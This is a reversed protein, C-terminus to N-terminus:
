PKAECPILSERPPRAALLAALLVLAGGSWERLGLEREGLWAASLVAALLEVVVLVAARSAEVHSFGYQAAGMAVLWFLGFLAVQGWLLPSMAPLSVEQLLCFLASFLASGVFAVVAKSLLPVQEAARTALNNLAFALGASLALWDAAQLEALSDRSVGLTLGIGLMALLLAGVRLGTLQEGLLLWGGLLGWVPALYFLLMARVVDGESLAGVLGATAWGGFVGIALLGRWQARWGARQWYLLPLALLSLLGYTALVVPMGSLGLGAFHQLPMWGLGWIIAGLLLVIEPKLWGM